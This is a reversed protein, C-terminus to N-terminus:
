RVSIMLCEKKGGDFRVVAGERIVHRVSDGTEVNLITRAAWELGKGVIRVDLRVAIQQLPLPVLLKDEILESSEIWGHSEFISLRAVTSLENIL